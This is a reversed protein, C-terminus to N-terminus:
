VGRLRGAPPNGTTAGPVAAPVLGYQQLIDLM